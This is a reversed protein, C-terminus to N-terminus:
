WTEPKVGITILQAKPITLENYFAMPGFSDMATLRITMGEPTLFANGLSKFTVPSSKLNTPMPITVARSCDAYNASIGYFSPFVKDFNEPHNCWGQAIFSWLAPLGMPYNNFIEGLTMERGDTLDYLGPQFDPFPRAGGLYLIELYYIVSLINPSPLYATFHRSYSARCTSEQDKLCYEDLFDIGSLESNYERYDYQVFNKFLQDLKDNGTFAPFNIDFEFIVKNDVLVYPKNIFIARLNPLEPAYQNGREDTRFDDQNAHASRSNACQSYAAYILTIVSILIVLKVKIFQM